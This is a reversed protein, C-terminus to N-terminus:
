GTAANGFNGSCSQRDSAQQASEAVISIHRTFSAFEVHNHQARTRRPQHARSNRPLPVPTNQQQLVIRLRPPLDQDGAATSAVEGINMARRRVEDRLIRVKRLRRQGPVLWSIEKFEDLAVSDLPM